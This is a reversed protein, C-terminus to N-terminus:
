RNRGLSLWQFHRSINFASRVMCVYVYAVPITKLTAKRDLIKRWQKEKEKERRGNLAVNLNEVVRGCAYQYAVYPSASTCVLGTTGGPPILTVDGDSFAETVFLSDPSRTTKQNIYKSQEDDSRLLYESEEIEVDKSSDRFLGSEFCTAPDDLVGRYVWIFGNEYSEFREWCKVGYKEHVQAINDNNDNELMDPSCYDSEMSM